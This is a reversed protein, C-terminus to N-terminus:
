GSLESSTRDSDFSSEEIISTMSHTHPMSARPNTKPHLDNFSPSLFHLKICSKYAVAPSSIQAM